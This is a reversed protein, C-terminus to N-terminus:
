NWATKEGPEMEFGTNPEGTKMSEKLPCTEGCLNSRFVERCPKGMVEERSYGTIREAARNFSTICFSRDVSFVGDPMAGLIMQSLRSEEHM